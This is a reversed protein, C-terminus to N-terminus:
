KKFNFRDFDEKYLNYIISKTSKTINIQKKEASSNFHKDLEGYEPFIPYVYKNYDETLTETRLILPCHQDLFYNQPMDHDVKFDIGRCWKVFEKENFVFSDKRKGRKHRWIFDSILREYPHRIISFIFYDNINGVEQEIRSLSYHQPSTRIDEQYVTNEWLSEKNMIGLHKEVSTGGTKPIHVFCIKDKKSLPM